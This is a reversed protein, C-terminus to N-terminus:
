FSLRETAKLTKPQARISFGRDQNKILVDMYIGSSPDM